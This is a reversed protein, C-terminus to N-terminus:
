DISVIQGSADGTASTKTADVSRGREMSLVDTSVATDTGADRVIFTPVDSGSAFVAVLRARSSFNTSTAAAIANIVDKTGIKIHAAGSNSPAVGTLAINVNLTINTTQARAPLVGAALLACGIVSLMTTKM